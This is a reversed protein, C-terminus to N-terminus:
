VYQHPPNDFCPEQMGHTTCHRRTRGGVVQELEADTLSPTEADSEAQRPQEAMNSGRAPTHSLTHAKLQLGDSARHPAYRANSAEPPLAASSIGLGRRWANRM